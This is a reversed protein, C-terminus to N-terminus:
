SIQEIRTIVVGNSDCEPCEPGGHPHELTMCVNCTLWMQQLKILARALRKYGCKPMWAKFWDAVDGPTGTQYFGTLEKFAELTHENMRDFEAKTDRM